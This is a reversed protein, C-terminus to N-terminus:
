SVCGCVIFYKHIYIPPTYHVYEKGRYTRSERNFFLKELEKGFNQHRTFIIFFFGSGNWAWRHVFYISVKSLVIFLQTSISLFVSLCFSLFVSLCFSLFVSLCFISLNISFYMYQHIFVYIPLYVSVSQSVSPYMFLKIM